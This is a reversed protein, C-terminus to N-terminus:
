CRCGESDKEDDNGNPKEDDLSNTELLEIDQNRCQARHPDRHRMPVFSAEAVSGGPVFM